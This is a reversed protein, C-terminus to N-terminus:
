EGAGTRLSTPVRVVPKMDEDVGNGLMKQTATLAVESSMAEKQRGLEACTPLESCPEDLPSWSETTELSTGKLSDTM